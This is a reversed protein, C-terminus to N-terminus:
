MCGKQRARTMPLVKHALSWEFVVGMRSQVWVIRKRQERNVVEVQNSQWYYITAIVVSLAVRVDKIVCKMALLYKTVSRRM